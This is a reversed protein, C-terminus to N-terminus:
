VTKAAAHKADPCAALVPAADGVRAAPSLATAANGPEFGMMALASRPAVVGASTRALGVNATAAAMLAFMVIALGALGLRIRLM